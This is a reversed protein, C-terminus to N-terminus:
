CAAPRVARVSRGPRAGTPQGDRVVAEGGVIVHAIGEPAQRPDAFTARDIVNAADFVVLDGVCGVAIRGRDPLHMADAAQATM